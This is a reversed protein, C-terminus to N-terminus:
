GEGHKEIEKAAIFDIEILWEPESLGVVYMLTSAPRHDGLAQRRVAHAGERDARDLLLMNLQVIDAIEMDAAALVENINAWVIRAQEEIGEGVTGDANVGVQGAGFLVREPSVVEIGHSYTAFPQALASPNHKKM